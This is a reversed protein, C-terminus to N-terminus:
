SLLTFFIAKFNHKCYYNIDWIELNNIFFILIYIYQIKNHKILIILNELKNMLYNKYFLYLEDLYLKISSEIDLAIQYNQKEKM